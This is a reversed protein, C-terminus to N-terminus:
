SNQKSPLAQIPDYLDIYLVDREENNFALKLFGLAKAQQRITEDYAFTQTGKWINKKPCTFKLFANNDGASEVRCAYENTRKNLTAIYIARDTSNAEQSLCPQALVAFLIILIIQLRM